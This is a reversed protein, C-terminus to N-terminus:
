DSSYMNTNGVVQRVVGEIGINITWDMRDDPYRENRQVSYTYAVGGLSASKILWGSAEAWNLVKELEERQKRIREEM